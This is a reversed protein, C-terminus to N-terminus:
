CVCVNYYRYSCSSQLACLLVTSYHLLQSLIYTNLLFIRIFVGCVCVERFFKYYTNVFNISRFLAGQILNDREKIEDM